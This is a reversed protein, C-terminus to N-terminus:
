VPQPKAAAQLEMYFGAYGQLGFRKSKSVIIPGARYLALEHIRLIARRTEPAFLITLVKPLFSFVRHKPVLFCSIPEQTAARAKVKERDQEACSNL